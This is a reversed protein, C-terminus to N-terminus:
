EYFLVKYQCTYAYFLYQLKKCIKEKVVYLSPKRLVKFFENSVYTSFHMCMQCLNKKLHIHTYTKVKVESVNISIM